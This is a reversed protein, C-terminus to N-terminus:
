IRLIITELIVRSILGNIIAISLMNFPKRTLSTDQVVSSTVFDSISCGMLCTDQTTLM